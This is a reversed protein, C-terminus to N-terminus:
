GESYQSEISAVVVKLRDTVDFKSTLDITRWTQGLNLVVVIPQGNESQSNSVFRPFTSYINVSIFFLSTRMGNTHSFITALCHRNM